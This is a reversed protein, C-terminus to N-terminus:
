HMRGDEEGEGRGDRRGTSPEWCWRWRRRWRWWWWWWWSCEPFTGAPERIRQKACSGVPAGNGEARGGRGAAAGQSSVETEWERLLRACERRDDDGVGSGGAGLVAMPVSIAVIEGAASAAAAADDEDDEHKGEQAAANAAPRLTQLPSPRREEM